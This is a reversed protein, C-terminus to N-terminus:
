EFASLLPTITIRDPTQGNFETLLALITEIVLGANDASAGAVSFGGTNQVTVTIASTQRELVKVSHVPQSDRFVADVLNQNFALRAMDIQQTNYTVYPGYRPDHSLAFLDLKKTTARCARVTLATITTYLSLPLVTHYGQEHLTWALGAATVHTAAHSETGAICAAGSQYCNEYAKPNSLSMNLSPLTCRNFSAGLRTALSYLPLAPPEPRRYTASCLLTFDSVVNTPSAYYEIGAIKYVTPVNVPNSAPTDDADGDEYMVGAM